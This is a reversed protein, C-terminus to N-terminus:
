NKEGNKLTSTFEGMLGFLGFWRPDLSELAIEESPTVERIQLWERFDPSVIKVGLSKALIKTIWQLNRPLLSVFIQGVAQGTQVEYFGTSAQLEKIMRRLLSTGMETFDFTNSYLLKRASDEDKLGLEQQIMPFMSNLGFPIPRSIDLVGDNFIFLQASTPTIELMLTPDSDKAHHAYEMLARLTSLSGLRLSHPFIGFRVLREQQSRWDTSEAGCFMLEKQSSLSKSPNFPLGDMANLIAVSNKSADIRYQSNLFEEFFGGERMKNPQELTARRLFRTSPYVACDAPVYASTKGAANVRKLISEHFEDADISLPYEEVSELRFPPKAGNSIATLISFDGIEAFLRKTKTALM